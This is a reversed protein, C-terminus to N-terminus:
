SAFKEVAFPALMRLVRVDFWHEELEGDENLWSCLAEPSAEPVCGFEGATRVDKVEMLPGGSVLVVMRSSDVLELEDARFTGKQFRTM